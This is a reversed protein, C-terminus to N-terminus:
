FPEYCDYNRQPWIKGDKWEFVFACHVTIVVGAAMSKLPLALTGRWTV